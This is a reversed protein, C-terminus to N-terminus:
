AGGEECREKKLQDRDYMRMFPYYIVTSILINVLCLVIARWDGGTTLFAGIPAPLTWPPQVAMYTVFGWSFAFWTVVCLVLPALLFPIIFFPNMMVPLGFMIPESINFLAPVAVARMISKTYRARGVLFGAIVLGITAGSGGISVFWQFFTEPAIHPAPVGSAVADANDSLYQLWVPRAVSGVV